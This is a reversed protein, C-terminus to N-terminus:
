RKKFWADLGKMRARINERYARKLREFANRVREISFDHEEVLIEKISEFNPERWEIRYDDTVPPNLFIGRIEEPPVPFRANPLTKLARELSGYTRILRYATKPGVGRVGEPNYDTGLLVAIDILQERTLNLVRLLKGLEIIEPKIDVYVNKRPLKRRGSLTLNRLLRPAGFLLSDYDQSAAAWADGKAAMHAAQAEGESPAQVWPVGMAKLLRKADEVMESTLRSSMQAYRRAAELDGRARAEEYKRAAAERVSVREAIEKAKLEPPKGDFVYVPKIGAEMFNITRYFLGSLHSTIRGKSDKLPTGDPQRIAALFQYLANYADIAVVRGKLERLDSVIKVAEPPILDRLNVGLAYVLNM